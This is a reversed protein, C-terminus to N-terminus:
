ELAMIEDYLEQTIENNLFRECLPAIILNLAPLGAVGISRYVDRTEMLHKEAKEWDM